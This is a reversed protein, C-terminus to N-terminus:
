LGGGLIERGAFSALGLTIAAAFLFGILIRLYMIMSDGGPLVGESIRRIVRAFFLSLGFCGLGLLAQLNVIPINKLFNM